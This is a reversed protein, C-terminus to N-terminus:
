FRKLKREKEITRPVDKLELVKSTAVFFSKKMSQYNDEVKRLAALKQKVNNM